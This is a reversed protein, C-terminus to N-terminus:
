QMEALPEKGFGKDALGILLEKRTDPASWIRRLEDEHKFFKPLVGYLVELFQLKSVRSRRRIGFVNRRRLFNQFFHLFFSSM